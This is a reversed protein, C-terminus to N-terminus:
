SNFGVAGKRKAWHEEPKAAINNVSEDSLRWIQGHRNKNVQLHLGCSEKERSRGSIALTSIGRNM